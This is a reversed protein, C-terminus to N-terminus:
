RQKLADRIERLLAVEEAVEEEAADEKRARMANIKNMPVIVIFYLVAAVVLFNFIAALVLGISFHAHNITFRGVDEIGPKGFIAAILPNVIGDLFAKIVAAFAVGIVFAVALDIVNGRSIFDRFGKIV